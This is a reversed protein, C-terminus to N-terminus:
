SLLLLIVLNKGATIQKNIACIANNSKLRFICNTVGLTNKSAKIVPFPNVASIKFAPKIALKKQNSTKIPEKYTPTLKIASIM